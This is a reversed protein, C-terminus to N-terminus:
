SLQIRLQNMTKLINILYHEEMTSVAQWAVFILREQDPSIGEEIKIKAKEIEITDSTTVKLTVETKVFIHM